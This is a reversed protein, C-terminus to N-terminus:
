QGGEEAYIDCVLDVPFRALRSLLASSVIFGGQSRGMFTACVIDISCRASLATLADAHGEMFSSLLELHSELSVSDVLNSELIWLSEARRTSKPNRPSM